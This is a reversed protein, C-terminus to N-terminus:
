LQVASPAVQDAGHHEVAGLRHRLRVDLGAFCDVERAVVGARQALGCALQGIAAHIREAHHDHRRRPVKGQGDGRAADEGGERGAIGDHELGRGLRYQHAPPQDVTQPVGADRALDELEQREGSARTPATM